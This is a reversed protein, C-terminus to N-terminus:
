PVITVRYVRQSDGAKLRDTVCVRGGNGILPEGLRIWPGDPIMSRYEVQYVVNSVSFWSIEVESVGIVVEPMLVGVVGRHSDRIC